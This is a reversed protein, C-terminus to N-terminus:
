SGLWAAAPYANWAAQANRASNREYIDALMNFDPRSVSELFHAPKEADPKRHANLDDIMHGATRVGIGHGFYLGDPLVIVNEGQWEPTKPDVDPNEFYGRDGPLVDEAKKPAGISKLLSDIYYWNMLYIEPFQEDFLADGYVNLLAKYYLIIMATACETAYKGGNNFIDRIAESPSAGSKLNFGGNETREWYDENCRSKHFTAFAFASRDMDRATKIIEKRLRLEFKLKDLSDYRYNETSQSMKEILQREVSNQPYDNTITSNDFSHDSVTIM